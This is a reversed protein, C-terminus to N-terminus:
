FSSTKDESWTGEGGGGGGFFFFFYLGPQPDFEAVSPGEIRIRMLCNLLLKRLTELISLCDHFISKKKNRGFMGKPSSIQPFITKLELSENLPRFKFFNSFQIYHRNEGSQLNSNERKKVLVGSTYSHGYM